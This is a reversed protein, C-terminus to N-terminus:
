TLKAFNFFICLEFWSQLFDLNNKRIHKNDDNKHVYSFYYLACVIVIQLHFTCCLHCKNPVDGFRDKNYTISAKELLEEATYNDMEPEIPIGQIKNQRLLHLKDQAQLALKEKSM